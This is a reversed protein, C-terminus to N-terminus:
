RFITAPRVAPATLPYSSHVERGWYVFVCAMSNQRVIRIPPPACDNILDIRPRESIAVTIANTVKWSNGLLQIVDRIKTSIRDPNRREHLRRHIVKAIVNRIIFVNIWHEARQVVKFLQNGFRMALANTHQDIQHDRVGRILMLPKNFAPAILGVTLRVPIHPSIRLSIPRRRVVPQGDKTTRCPLPIATTALVVQVVEQAGLRIQVEMAFFHLLSNQIRCAEPQLQTNVPETKIGHVEVNVVLM